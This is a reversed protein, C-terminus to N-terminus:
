ISLISSSLITMVECVVNGM